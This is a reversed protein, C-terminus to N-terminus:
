GTQQQKRAKKTLQQWLQELMAQLQPNSMDELGRRALVIIDISPLQHQTLRFSERILRKVRNRQNAQRINKKAIVLGLRARGLTNSRGLLLIQSRSAKLQADDFVSKFDSAELLRADKGFRCSSKDGPM